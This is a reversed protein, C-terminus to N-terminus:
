LKCIRGSSRRNAEHIGARASKGGGDRQVVGCSVLAFGYFFGGFCQGAEVKVGGSGSVRRMTVERVQGEEDERGARVPM